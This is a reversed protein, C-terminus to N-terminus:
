TVAFNNGLGKELAQEYTWSALAVDSYGGQSERFVVIDGSDPAVSVQGAVLQGLEAVKAWDVM